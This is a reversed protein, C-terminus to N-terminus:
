PAHAAPGTESAGLWEQADRVAAPMDNPDPYRLWEKVQKRLPTLYTRLTHFTAGQLCGREPQSLLWRAVYSATRGAVLLVVANYFTNSPLARLRSIAWEAWSRDIGTM